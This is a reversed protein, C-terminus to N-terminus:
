CVWVRSPKLFAERRLRDDRHLPRHGIRLQGLLLLAPFSQIVALNALLTGIPCGCPAVIRARLAMCLFAFIAAWAIALPISRSIMAGYDIPMRSEPASQGWFAVVLSALLAIWYRQNESM